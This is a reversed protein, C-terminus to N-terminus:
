IDVKNVVWEKIYKTHVVHRYKGFIRTLIISLVSQDFRHCSDYGLLSKLIFRLPIPGIWRDCSIVIRTHKDGMCNEFASVNRKRLSDNSSKTLNGSTSALLNIKLLVGNIIFAIILGHTPQAKVSFQIPSLCVLITM